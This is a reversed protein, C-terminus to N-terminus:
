TIIQIKKKQCLSNETIEYWRSIFRITYKWPPILFTNTKTSERALLYTALCLTTTTHSSSPYAATPPTRKLLMPQKTHHRTTLTNAPPINTHKNTPIHATYPPLLWCEALLLPSRGGRTHHRRTSEGLIHSPNLNPKPTLQVLRQTTPGNNRSKPNRNPDM